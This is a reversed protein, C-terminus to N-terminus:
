GADSGEDLSAKQPSPSQNRIRVILDIDERRTGRPLAPLRRFAVAEPPVDTLEGTDMNHLHYHPATNTDYMIRGGDLCIERVLGREALLNLTNYVTARCVSSGHRNIAEFLALASLHGGREFLFTAVQLRQPTVQIGAERLRQETTHCVSSVPSSSRSTM